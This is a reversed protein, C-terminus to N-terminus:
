KTPVFIYLCANKKTAHKKKLDEEVNWMNTTVFYMYMNTSPQILLLYVIKTTIVFFLVPEICIYIYVDYM